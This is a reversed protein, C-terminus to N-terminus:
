EQKEQVALFRGSNRAVNNGRKDFMMEKRTPWWTVSIIGGYLGEVPISDAVVLKESEEEGHDIELNQKSGREVKWV